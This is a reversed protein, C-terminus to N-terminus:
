RSAWFVPTTSTANAPALTVLVWRRSMPVRRHAESDLAGLGSHKAGAADVGTAAVRNTDIAHVPGGSVTAQRRSAGTLFRYPDSSAQSRAPPIDGRRASMCAGHESWNMAARRPARDGPHTGSVSLAWPCYVLISSATVSVHRIVIRWSECPIARRVGTVENTRPARRRLGISGSAVTAV